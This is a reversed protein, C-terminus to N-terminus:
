RKLSLIELQQGEFLLDLDRLIIKAIVGNLNCIDFDVFTM